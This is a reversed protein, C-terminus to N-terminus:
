AATCAPLLPATVIVSENPPWPMKCALRFVPALATCCFETASVEVTPPLPPPSAPNLGL